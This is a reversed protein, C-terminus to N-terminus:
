HIYFPKGRTDLRFPPCQYEFTKRQKIKIKVLSTKYMVPFFSRVYAVGITFSNSLDSTGSKPIFYSIYEM